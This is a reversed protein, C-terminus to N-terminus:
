SNVMPSEREGEEDGDEPKKAEPDPIRGTKVWDEPKSDEPNDIVAKDEWDEPKKAEPDLGSALTIRSWSTPTSTRCFM